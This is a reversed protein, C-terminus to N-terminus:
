MEDDNKFGNWLKDSERDDIGDGGLIISGKSTKTNHSSDDLEPKKKPDYEPPPEDPPEPAHIPVPEWKKNEGM